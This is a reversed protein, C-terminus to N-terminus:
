DKLYKRGKLKEPLYDQEVPGKFKPNYKYGKGYDLDKMLKTPANRLHLPVPENPLEAIDKQIAQYAVYVANSKPAKALYAACHALIVNCEPMGIAHAANYANMAIVLAQSDALGVDESAFRVLRRAVYLPDEGAELMRGLWYLAADADSGRMSKHLASIINYHEEGTKDYRLHTKALAYKVAEIKLVQRKSIKLAKAAIELSNLAVRADGDAVYALFDIADEEVKIKGDLGAPSKIARELLKKIDEATLKELVFVRCRSLLAGNIEFSPNETTAGILTIVGSEVQPLLADQQSKNWRHIEDVFLITRTNALKRKEKAEDVVRRLDAIGSSVASVQEFRSRTLKAIIRALTTKGTGPPGWFIMSPLEDREILTRLTTGAGILKEQGAYSELSTPRMRDALPASKKLEQELKLDFLDSM